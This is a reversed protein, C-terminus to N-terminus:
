RRAACSLFEDAIAQRDVRALRQGLILARVKDAATDLDDNVLWHTYRDQAAEIERASNQLRTEIQEADDSGRSRLRRELEAMSPPLVFLLVADDLREAIQRGGEVDIDFLVDHGRALREEVPARATGYRYNHVEAWELFVDRDVLTQFAKADVFHYDIGNREQGRQSRTTHSISFALRDLRQMVAHCLTTKGAGSPASVVLPVGRKRM